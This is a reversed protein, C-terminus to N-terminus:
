GLAARRTGDEVPRIGPETGDLLRRVHDAYHSLEVRREEYHSAVLPAGQQAARKSLRGYLEIQEMLARLAAWIADEADDGKAHVLSEGTWGHGTRCRFRMVDEDDLEWLTGGCDPCSFVSPDGPRNDEHVRPPGMRSMVVEEREEPETAVFADEIPETAVKTLLAAMSAIPVVHDPTVARLAAEPMGPFTADDPDQVIAMGHHRKIAALGAAGDDLMGSLIVGIIAPGCSVAASRFLVDASPRVGNERPGATLSLVDDTILTHRDPPAVYVRGAELRDRDAAHAVHVASHRSLIQPLVSLAGSPFHIVAVVAAPFDPQLGNVLTTLADVAGASGGIVVIRSPRDM